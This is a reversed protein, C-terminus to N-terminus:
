GDNKNEKNKGIEELIQSIKLGTDVSNDYIFKLEPVNRLKIREILNKKIFGSSNKLAALRKETPDDKEMISVFIDLYKGDPSLKTDTVTIFGIRPDKIKTNIIFSIERK